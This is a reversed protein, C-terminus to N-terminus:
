DESSSNDSCNDEEDAEYLMYSMEELDCENLFASMNKNFMWEEFVVFQINEM